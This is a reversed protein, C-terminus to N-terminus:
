LCAQSETMNDIDMVVIACVKRPTRGAQLEALRDLILSNNTGCSLLQVIVINEAEGSQSLSSEFDLLQTYM